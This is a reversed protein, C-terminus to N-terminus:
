TGLGRSGPSRRPGVRSAGAENRQWTRPGKVLMITARTPTRTLHLCLCTLRHAARRPDFRARSSRPKRTLRDVLGPSHSLPSRHVLGTRGAPTRDVRRRSERLAGVNGSSDFFQSPLDVEEFVPLARNDRGLRRRRGAGDALLRWRPLFRVRRADLILNAEKLPPDGLKFAAESSFRHGASPSSINQSGLPASLAPAWM